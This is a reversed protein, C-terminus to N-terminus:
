QYVMGCLYHFYKVGSGLLQYVGPDVDDVMRCNSLVRLFVM